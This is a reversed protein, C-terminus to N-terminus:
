LDMLRNILLPEPETLYGWIFRKTKMPYQLATPMRVMISNDNGGNELVLVTTAPNETLRNALVSGASGAGIIIYDYKGETMMKEKM